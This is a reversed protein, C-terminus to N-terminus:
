TSLSYQVNTCIMYTHMNYMHIITFMHAHAYKCKWAFVVCNSVFNELLTAWVDSYALPSFKNHFKTYNKDSWHVVTTNLISDHRLDYVTFYDWASSTALLFHKYSHDFLHKNRNWENYSYELLLNAVWQSAMVHSTKHTFLQWSETDLKAICFM